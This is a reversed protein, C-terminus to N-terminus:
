RPASATVLHAVAPLRVGDATAYPALRDALEAVLTARTTEDAGRERLLRSLPGFLSMLEAEENTSRAGPLHTDIREIGIDAFGAGTLIEQIYDRESLALPGPARPPQPEPPGLRPVAVELPLVFWPNDELPGWSVFALHGGGRLAGALNAFARVPDDFFMVGFRSVVRDHCAREFRQTQADALILRVNHLGGHLVRRRAAALLRESIDIGLVSGHAGVADALLLTTTAAGCGIDIVADGPRVGCRELLRGTLPALRQDLAEQYTVWKEGSASNWFEAQEANAGLERDSDVAM